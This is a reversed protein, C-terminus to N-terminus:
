SGSIVLDLVMDQYIDELKVFGERSNTPRLLLERLEERV